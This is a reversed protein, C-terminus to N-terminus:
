RLDISTIVTDDIAREYSKVAIADCKENYKNNSHGKVWQFTVKNFLKCSDYCLQIIEKNKVPEGKSNMWNNKFWTEIWESISNIAYSSDSYVNVTIDNISKIDTINNMDYLNSSTMYKVIPSQLNVLDSIAKLGEYIARIEMKNNTTDRDSGYICIAKEKTIGMQESILISCFGGPGPNGSCAGDTYLEVTFKSAM